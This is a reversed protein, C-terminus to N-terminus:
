VVTYVPEVAPGVTGVDQVHVPVNEVSKIVIKGIEEPTHVQGSVLGLFLQHNRNLLGPSDIVNTRNIATVIDAVAVKARLMRAPDVTVHFEPRQGGQVLVSAVGSLRNLRPKIEYTAFDWLETQSVSDSTLSYGIIP